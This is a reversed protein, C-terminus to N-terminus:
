MIVSCTLDRDFSQRNIFLIFFIYHLQEFFVLLISYALGLVLLFVLVSFMIYTQRIQLATMVLLRVDVCLISCRSM